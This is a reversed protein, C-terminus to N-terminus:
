PPCVYFIPTFVSEFLQRGLIFSSGAIDYQLYVQGPVTIGFNGDYGGGNKIENRSFTDKGSKAYGVDAKDERYFSPNQSTYLGLTTSFGKFPASKFILSGGIGMAKHDKKRGGTAYDETGWDFYFISSRLRGYFIGKSFAETLTPAEQPLKNYAVTMNRNLTVKEAKIAFASLPFFYVFVCILCFTLYKKM